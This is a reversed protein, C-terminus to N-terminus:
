ARLSNHADEFAEPIMALVAREQSTSPIWHVVPLSFLVRERSSEATRRALRHDEGDPFVVQEVAVYACAIGTNKQTVPPHGVLAEDVMSYTDLAEPFCHRRAVSHQPTAVDCRVGQPAATNTGREIVVVGNIIVYEIGILTNPTREPPM